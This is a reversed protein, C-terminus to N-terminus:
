SARRATVILELRLAVIELLARDLVDEVHASSVQLANLDARTEALQHLVLRVLEAVEGLELPPEASGRQDPVLALEAVEGAVDVGATPGAQADLAPEAKGNVQEDFADWNEFGLVRLLDSEAERADRHRRRLAISSWPKAPKTAVVEQHLLNMEAIAKESIVRRELRQEVGSGGTAGAADYTSASM